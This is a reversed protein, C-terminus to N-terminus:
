RLISVKAPNVLDKIFIKQDQCIKVLEKKWGRKNLQMTPFNLLEAQKGNYIVHIYSIDYFPCYSDTVMRLRELVVSDKSTIEDFYVDEREQSHYAIGDVLGNTEIIM